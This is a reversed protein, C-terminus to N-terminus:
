HLNVAATLPFLYRSLECLVLGSRRRGARSIFTTCRQSSFFFLVFFLYLWVQGHPLDTLNELEFHIELFCLYVTFFSFLFPGPKIKKCLSVVLHGCMCHSSTRTTHTRANALSRTPTFFCIACM